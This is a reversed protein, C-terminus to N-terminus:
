RDNKQTKMMQRAIELLTSHDMSPRCFKCLQYPTKGCSWLDARVASYLGRDDEVEPATYGPTGVVGRFMDKVDNGRFSANFDISLHVGRLLMLISVPKLDM